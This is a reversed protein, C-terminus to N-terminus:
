VSLWRKSPRFHRSTALAAGNIGAQTTVKKTESKTNKTNSKPNKRTLSVKSAPGTIYCKMSTEESRRKKGGIKSMGVKHVGGKRKQRLSRGQKKGAVVIDDKPTANGSKGLPGNETRGEIQLETHM